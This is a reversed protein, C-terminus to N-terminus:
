KRRIILVPRKSRRVIRGSVSGLLMEGVMSKGHSGIVILGTDEENAIAEIETFPIGERLVTKVTKIGSALLEDKINLLRGTDIDEFEPLKELLHPALRTMDQIHAVVIEKAGADKLKKLYPLASMAYESFDTPFLIKEFPNAHRRTYLVKEGKKKKELKEILLPVTAHRLVNETTSGLLMEEVLSKGHSGMIILSVAEARAIGVIQHYPIGVEMRAHVSFGTDKLREELIILKEEATDKMSKIIGNSIDPFQVLFRQDIVHLVIVEMAGAPILNTLLESVTDSYESFDTPFLIKEFM